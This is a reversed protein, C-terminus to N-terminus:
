IILSIQKPDNKVGRTKDDHFYGCVQVYQHKSAKNAFKPVSCYKM